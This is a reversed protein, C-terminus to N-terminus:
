TPAETAGPVYVIVTRAVPLPTLGAVAANWSVTVAMGLKLREILGAPAM